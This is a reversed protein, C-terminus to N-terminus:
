FHSKIYDKVENLIETALERGKARIEGCPGSVSVSVEFKALGIGVSGTVTITCTLEDGQDIANVFKEIANEIQQDSLKTLDGLNLSYQIKQDVAEKKVLPAANSGYSVLSVSLLSLVLASLVFLKKM